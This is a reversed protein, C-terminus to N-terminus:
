QERAQEDMLLRSGYWVWLERRSEIGDQSDMRTIFDRHFANGFIRNEMLFRIFIAFYGTDHIFIQGRFLIFDHRNNVNWLM